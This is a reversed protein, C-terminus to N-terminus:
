AHLAVSLNVRFTPRNAESPPSGAKGRKQDLGVTFHERRLRGDRIRPAPVARLRCPRAATPRPSAFGQRRAGNQCGGWSRRAASRSCTGAPSGQATTTKPCCLLHCGLLQRSSQDTQYERTSVAHGHDTPLQRPSLARTPAPAREASFILLTRRKTHEAATMLEATWFFM